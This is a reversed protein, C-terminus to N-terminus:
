SQTSQSRQNSDLVNMGGFKEFTKLHHQWYGEREECLKEKDKTCLNPDLEVNDIIKIRVHKVLSNDFEKQNKDRVLDHDKDLFHNTLRCSKVNRKIHSKHNSFRKPLNGISYGVYSSECTTCEALYILGTNQCTIKKSMSFVQTTHYSSFSDCPTLYGLKCVYCKGCPVCGVVTQQNNPEVTDQQPPVSIDLSQTSTSSSRFRNHILMDGITKNKRYSVFVSGPKMIKKLNEDRELLHKHKHIISGVNPLAPNNEIVLPLAGKGKTGCDSKVSYLDKRKSIDRFKNFANDIIENSYGRKLLHDSYVGSQEEFNTDESNNQRVRRAVGYPINRTVHDKHCSTPILYCHTDSKKSFLKTHIFQDSAYVFLDLFEVGDTSFSYTFKLDSCIGNLWAIFEVLQDVTGTWIMLIDDRLRAWFDPRINSPNIPEDPNNVLQDIKDITCDAYECANKPGMAAGKKQRFTQGNFTSINYDLTIELADIVCKTSFLKEQDSRADLHKTCQQIGTDRPINTFMDVIDIAVLTINKGELINGGNLEDLKRLVHPSDIVRYDLKSKKLEFATLASLNEIFAGCGTTILRGPYLPPKHAKLNLYINGPQHTEVSPIVWKVIKSTMGPENQYTETWCKIKGILETILLTPSQVIEYVERNELHINIRRLYEEEYMLFFGVGKDFPRITIGKWSKIQKLATRVGKPMNDPSVFKRKSKSMDVEARICSIFAEVALNQCSQFNKTKGKPILAMELQTTRSDVANPQYQLKDFIVKARLKSFFTQLDNEFCSLDPLSPTPAFKHSLYFAYLQEKTLEKDTLNVVTDKMLDLTIDEVKPINGKTSDRRHRQAPKRSKKKNNKRRNKPKTNVDSNRNVCQASSLLPTKYFNWQFDRKIKNQHCKTSIQKEKHLADSIDNELRSFTVSDIKNKYHEKKSYFIAKLHKSRERQNDIVLDFMRSKHELNLENCSNVFETDKVSCMFKMQTAIGRAINGNNRTRILYRLQHSAKLSKVGLKILEAKTTNVDITPPSHTNM